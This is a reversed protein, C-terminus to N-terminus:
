SWMRAHTIWLMETHAWAAGHIASLVGGSNTTFLKGEESRVKQAFEMGGKILNKGGLCFPDEERYYSLYGGLKEVLRLRSSKDLSDFPCKVFHFINSIRTPNRLLQAIQSETFGSSELSNITKWLEPLFTRNKYWETKVADIPWTPIHRDRAVHIANALCVNEIVPSIEGEESRLVEKCKSM